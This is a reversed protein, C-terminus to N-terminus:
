NGKRSFVRQFLKVFEVIVVMLIGGLVVVGWQSLNLQTVHFMQNFGPVLITVGLLILSVVIAWNFTKNAFINQQFISKSFSKVNFAHFLQILGLTVYAMTQADHHIMAYDTHVPFNLAWYYVGLTILGEIIGQYIIAPFVGGSFFTSNRGRPKEKMIGKETPEVGLAIAPFTDTVLNIWLLQVPALIDWGMITLVFLTLVEGLNASMLYQISKQINAFVKRGEKIAHVITAFNDDALVMDSANKSVETGNIGMGIGIDAAKLAPADNVGDGTMAVVKNKSQWAKVIRVKDAPNVRAYVSYQEVNQDLEEDSMQSLQSGSIVAENANESIIGLRTAIAQATVQHDGTIMITRIGAQKAEAVAAKAEPREPDIMGVMGAFVLDNEITDSNIPSPMEDIVKYAFGLVRLAQKALDNNVDLIDKQDEETLDHLENGQLYQNCRKLIEDPAGKTMVLYANDGFQNISTMMKRDSDFPLDNVRPTIKLEDQIFFDNKQGFKILATETPDGLLTGDAQIQSDNAFNMIRLTMDQQDLGVDSDLLQRDTYVKEVTMQNLTLTGTKDSGIIDTSGLTEVAPLKRIIANRKSLKQTGLALIITVIAPLGEPIAAVAISIAVILMDIWNADNKVMGILFILASIALIIYTLVKGLQSLNRQLPTTTDDNESIMSAIQGIETNMGTSVVIGTGRGFTVNTGSFAMDKQDGLAVNPETITTGLKQVPISEGTLSSEEIKLTSTEYLRLDAPVIDGAELVVIDGPVLDTSDIEQIDGDRKVRAKPTAMNKLAEIANEAKSEQFVGFIANLIVVALIIVADTWEHAILGAILAAALLVIIMFDKFQEIFMELYTKHHGASLKNEGYEMQLRRVQTSSLGDYSTRYKQIIDEVPLSYFKEKKEPKM